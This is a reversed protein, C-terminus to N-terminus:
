GLRYWECDLVVLSAGSADYVMRGTAGDPGVYPESRHVVLREQFPDALVTGVRVDIGLIVTHRAWGFIDRYDDTEGMRVTYAPRGAFTVTETPYVAYGWDRYGLCM